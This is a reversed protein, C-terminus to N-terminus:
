WDMAKDSERISLALLCIVGIVVCYMGTVLWLLTYLVPWNSGHLLYLGWGLFVAIASTWIPFAFRYLFHMLWDPESRVKVHASLARCVMWNLWLALSFIIGEESLGADRMAPAFLMPLLVTAILGLANSRESEKELGLAREQWFIYSALVLLLGAYLWMGTVFEVM